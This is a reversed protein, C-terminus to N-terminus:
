RRLPRREPFAVVVAPSRRPASPEALACAAACLSLGYNAFWRLWAQPQEVRATAPAAPERPSFAIVNM